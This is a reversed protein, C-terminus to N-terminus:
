GLALVTQVLVAVGVGFLVVVAVVLILRQVKRRFLDGGRRRDAGGRLNGGADLYTASSRM